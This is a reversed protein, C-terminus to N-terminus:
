RDMTVEPKSVAERFGAEIFNEALAAMPQQTEVALLRDQPTGLWGSPAAAGWAPGDEEPEAQDPWMPVFLSSGATAPDWGSFM